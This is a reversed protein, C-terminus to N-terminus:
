TWTEEQKREIMTSLKGSIDDLITITGMASMICLVPFFTMGYKRPSGNARTDASTLRGFGSSFIDVGRCILFMGCAIDLPAM